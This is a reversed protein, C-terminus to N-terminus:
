LKLAAVSPAPGELLRGGEAAEVLAYLRELRPTQVGNERAHELVPGLIERLETPRRHIWLDRWVGTRRAQLGDWYRRQANWSAHIRAPDGRLFANPDFGDVTECNVGEAEAVRAVEAVLAGLTSLGDERALIDPVDADVLATAFYSAGLATKGWLHGFIRDTVEVPHALSLLATLREVRPSRVGDLEGVYFSGPGGYVITGPEARHGGFTLSAGVTRSPGVAEAIRYEILGNQLSVVCGEQSLRPVVPELAAPTDHAKVALLVLGLEEELEAPLVAVPHVHISAAGTIRLGNARMALVHERDAEVFRVDHGAALLRAGVFGGIAGAGVVTITV